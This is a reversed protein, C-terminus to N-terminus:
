LVESGSMMLGIEERTVEEPRVVGVFRGEFMVAIRDSLQIVEDLDGSVLLIARGEDRKKLLLKRIYETAGVDLGFTPNSAVILKPDRRIERGVILKQMNGGSLLRAQTDPSPVAIEYENILSEATRRIEGYDLLLGRRYPPRYYSKLVSNEAVSMDPVIGFKLREEPIHGVGLEAIERPSKNTADVGMVSVSGSKVRRLGVIAQVLERQGNGAVGAVGFIEGERVEFSVGKVAERGRDGLVVLDKVELVPRGPKGLVKELEFVVDRGVMMRALSEKTAEEVRLTGVVRGRRMVTVRDAVEFVESLKHTIFVIGKGDEKMRRLVNFLDRAEQPTLVSTPEDLILIDAGAYLAKVIEVKQQEGVSLQWIYADPDVQIGYKEAFDRIRDKVERLPNLFSRAYGMALNEAVTHKDVLLFHQHVMGIGLRIADRPSRIRVKKGKVFIKGDDPQYIGYLINMLTTKGAGNEGLLAHIEGPLLEFNVHDNALVGPFRKVIGEM